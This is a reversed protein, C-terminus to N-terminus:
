PTPCVPPCPSSRDEYKSLEANVSNSLLLARKNDDNIAFIARISANNSESFLRDFTYSGFFHAKTAGNYRAIWQQAIGWNFSATPEYTTTIIRGESTVGVPIIVYKGRPDVAYYMAIGVCTPDSLIYKLQQVAVLCTTQNASGISRNYNNIWRNGTAVDIPAGVSRNFPNFLAKTNMIAAGETQKSLLSQNPSLIDQKKNCSIVVVFATLVFLVLQIRKLYLM